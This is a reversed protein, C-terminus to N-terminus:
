YKKTTTKIKISISYDAYNGFSWNMVWKVGYASNSRDISWSDYTPNFGYDYQQTDVPSIDYSNNSTDYVCSRKMKWVMYRRQPAYTDSNKMYIEVDYDMLDEQTFDEYFLDLTGTTQDIYKNIIYEKVNLKDDEGYGTDESYTTQRTQLFLGDEIRRYGTIGPQGEELQNYAQETNLISTGSYNTTCSKGELGEYSKVVFYSNDGYTLTRDSFIGSGNVISARVEDHQVGDDDILGGLLKNDVYEKDVLTRNNFNASYDADYQLGPTQIDYSPNSITIAQHTFDFTTSTIGDTTNMTINNDGQTMFLDAGSVGDSLRTQLRVVGWTEDNNNDVGLRAYGGNALGKIFTQKITTITPDETYYLGLTSNEQHSIKQDKNVVIDNAGTTNGSTLVEELTGGGVGAVANDVYERDVLTRNTFYPSYDDFYQLGPTSTNGNTITIASYGQEIITGNAGNDTLLKNGYNATIDIESTKTGDSAYQLIGGDEVDITSSLGFGDSKYTRVFSSSIFTMGGLGDQTKIGYTDDVIINNPGTTNGNDIVNALTVGSVSNDVYEKDVLSRNTFNTSYDVDYEVGPFTPSTGAITIFGSTMDIQTGQLGYIDDVNLIIETPGNTIRSFRNVFADAQSNHIITESDGITIYNQANGNNVRITPAWAGSGIDEFKFGGDLVNGDVKISQTFGSGNDDLSIDNAGTTNGNTLVSDLTGGGGILSDVYQKDVLSRNTFNASYDQDYTIGSFNTHGSIMFNGSGLSNYNMNFEVNGQTEGVISGDNGLIKFRGHNGYTETNGSGGFLYVENDDSVSIGVSNIYQPDNDYNGLGVGNNIEIWNNFTRNGLVLVDELTQSASPLNTLNSGDGYFTTASLSGVIETDDLLRIVGGCSNIEQITLNASCMDVDGLFTTNGSVTGGTFITATIGTLNSGDGYFVGEFHPSYITDGSITGGSLTPVNLQGTMTDGSKNVFSTVNINTTGSTIPVIGSISRVWMANDAANLFFEGVYLDTPTWTGDTHDDSTPITPTEGSITSYKFLFRSDQINFCSM